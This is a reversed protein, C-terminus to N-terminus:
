DAANHCTLAVIILWVVCDPFLPLRGTERYLWGFLPMVLRLCPLAAQIPHSRQLIWVISNVQLQWCLLRRSDTNSSTQLIAEFASAEIQSAQHLACFMIQQQTGRGM